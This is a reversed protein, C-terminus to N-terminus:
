RSVANAGADGVGLYMGGTYLVKALNSTGSSAQFWTMGDDSYVVAGGRGVALFRSGAAGGVTISLLDQALPPLVPPVRWNDVGNESVIVTGADGVAAYHIPLNPNYAAGRLTNTTNTTNSTQVTWDSGNLSTLLTGGSGTVTFLGNLVSISNLDNPPTSNAPLWKVLDNTVFIKGGTGVAVFTLTGGVFGFVLDNMGSAPVPVVGSSSWNLGDASTIISGDTGLAVFTGNDIVATLNSTFPVPFSNAPTWALVGPPDVNSYNFVGTFITAADGVAVFGIGNFVISRLNQPPAGLPLPTGSVWDKGALRPTAVVPVSSPGASSDDRTANMAFAYQQENALGAVVRPAIARRIAISGPAAVDVASGAEFFIWYTLEPLTDWSVLVLGDGPTATVGTPADGPPATKSYCGSLALVAAITPILLRV